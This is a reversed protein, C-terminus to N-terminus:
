TPRCWSSYRSYINCASHRQPPHNTLGFRRICTLGRSFVSFSIGFVCDVAIVHRHQLHAEKQLPEVPLNEFINDVNIRREIDADINYLLATDLAAPSIVTMNFKKRNKVESYEKFNRTWWKVDFSGQLIIFGLILFWIWGIACALQFFHPSSLYLNPCSTRNNNLHLMGTVFFSTRVPKRLFIIRM